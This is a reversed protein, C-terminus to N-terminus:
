RRSIKQLHCYAKKVKKYALVKEKKSIGKESAIQKYVRNLRKYSMIASKGAKKARSVSMFYRNFDSELRSKRRLPHFIIVYVIIVTLVATVLLKAIVLIIGVESAPIGQTNLVANSTITTGSFLFLSSGIALIWAYVSRKRFASVIKLLFLRAKGHGKAPKQLLDYGIKIGILVAIILISIVLIAIDQEAFVRNSPAEVINAREEGIIEKCAQLASSALSEVKDYDDNSLSDKAQALLDDVVWCEENEEFVSEVFKLKAEAKSKVDKTKKVIDVIIDSSDMIVPDGANAIVEVKYTGVNAQSIITLNTKISGGAKLLIFKQKYPEASLALSSIEAALIVRYLDTEGTNKIIIPVTIRDKTYLSIRCPAIVDINVYKFYDSPLEEFSVNLDSTNSIGIVGGSKHRVVVVEGANEVIGIIVTGGSLAWTIEDSSTDINFGTIQQPNSCDNENNCKVLQTSGDELFNSSADAYNIEGQGSAFSFGFGVGFVQRLALNSPVQLNEPLDNITITSNSASLTANTLNMVLSYVGGALTGRIEINYIGPSVNHITENTEIVRNSCVDRLTINYGSGATINFLESNHSVNFTYNKTAFNGNVDQVLASITYSGNETVNLTYNHQYSINSENENVHLSESSAALSPTVVSSNPLTVNVVSKNMFTHLSSNVSIEVIDNIRPYSRFPCIKNIVPDSADVDNVRISITDNVEELTNNYAHAVLGLYRASLSSNITYNYQWLSPSVSVAQYTLNSGDGNVTLTVNAIWDSRNVETINVSLMSGANNVSNNAPSSINIEARVVDVLWTQSFDGYGRNDKGRVKWYVSGDPLSANSYNTSSTTKNVYIVSFDSNGILLNYEAISDNDSDTGNWSFTLNNYLKATNNQPAILNVEPYRNVTISFNTTNSCAEEDCVKGYWEFSQQSYDTLTAVCSVNNSSSSANCLCGSNITYNCGTFDSNNAILLMVNDPTDIWFSTFNISSDEDIMGSENTTINILVPVYNMEVNLTTSGTLNLQQTYNSYGEKSVNITYNTAYTTALSTAFYETLNKRLIQGTSNTNENVVVSGSNNTIIVSANNINTGNSDNVLLDLYWLVHLEDDSSQLDLKSKNFTANILYNKKTGPAGKYYIDSVDGSINLSIFRNNDAGWFYLGYQTSNLIGGEFINNKSNTTIYAASCTSCSLNVSITNNIFTNNDSSVLQLGIKTESVIRNNEFTSNHIGEAYIANEAADGFVNNSVNYNYGANTQTTGLLVLSYNGTPNDGFNNNSIITNNAGYTVLHYYNDTFTNNVIISNNTNIWLGSDNSNGTYQYGVKSIYSDRMEFYAGQRVLFLYHASPTEGNTINSGNVIIMRGTSNVEIRLQGDTSGNMRLTSNDLTFNGNITLNENQWITGKSNRVVLEGNITSRAITITTDELILTYGEKVILKDVSIAKGVCTQSMNVVWTSQPNCVNITNNQSAFASYSENDTAKCNWEYSGPLVNTLNFTTSNQTGGVSVTQNASFIGNINHYLTIKSLGRDDSANCTLSLNGDTDTSGNAPSVLSVTPAGNCILTVSSSNQNLDNSCRIDFSGNTECTITRGYHYNRIINSQSCDNGSCDIDIDSAPVQQWSGGTYDEWYLVNPETCPANFLNFFDNNCSIMKGSGVNAFCNHCNITLVSDCNGAYAISGLLILIGLALCIKAKDM